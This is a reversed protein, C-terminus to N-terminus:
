ILLNILKKVFMHQLPLTNYYEVFFFVIYM